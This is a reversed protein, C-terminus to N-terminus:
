PRLFHLICKQLLTFIVLHSILQYCKDALRSNLSTKHSLTVNYEHAKGTATAPVLAVHESLVRLLDWPLQFVIFIKTVLKETQRPLMKFCVYNGM